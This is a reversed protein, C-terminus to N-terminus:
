PCLIPVFSSVSLKTQMQAAKLSVHYSTSLLCSNVPGSNLVALFSPPPFTLTMQPGRPHSTVLTRPPTLWDAPCSASMDESSLVPRRARDPRQSGAQSAAQLARSWFLVHSTHRVVPSVECVRATAQLPGTCSPFGLSVAVAQPHPCHLWKVSSCDQETIMPVNEVKHTEASKQPPWLNMDM